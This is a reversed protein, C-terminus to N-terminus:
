TSPTEARAHELADLLEEAPGRLRLDVLGSAPTTGLNIEATVARHSKAQRELSAAPYVLSSTGVSLFLDCETAALSQDLIDPEIAEGFWIVGPRALGGCAPCHPPIPTLPTTEDIWRDPSTLCGSWCRLDWLSGHFRLVHRTGAREHLGDVNQTILTFHEFRHSWGALVTHARSPQCAAVLQRRWDYWEWVLTPDRAFAERTALEESRHTRWLGGEGRFTPVGSEASVGAGTLVTIRRASRLHRALQAITSDQNEPM